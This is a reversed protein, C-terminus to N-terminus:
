CDGGGKHAVILKKKLTFILISLVPDQLFIAKKM